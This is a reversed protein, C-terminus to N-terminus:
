RSHPSWRSMVSPARPPRDSQLNSLVNSLSMTALPEHGVRGSPAIAKYPKGPAHYYVSVRKSDLSKQYTASGEVDPPLLTIKDGIDPKQIVLLACPTFDQNVEPALTKSANEVLVSRFRLPLEARQEHAIAWIPYEFANGSAVIGVDQCRRSQIDSIAGKYLKTIGPRSILYREVREVQYVSTSSAAQFILNQASIVPRFASFFVFPLSYVTLFLVAFYFVFIRKMKCSLITGVFPSIAVFFPLQLRSIWPQWSILLNFLFGSLLLGALYINRRSSRVSGQLYVILASLFLALHLLNGSSDESLAVSFLSGESPKRVPIRFSAQGYTIRPDSVDLKLINGHLWIIVKEFVENIPQFAVALHVSANRLLNSIFASPTFLENLTGSGSIGLPVGLADINRWWHGFNLLLVPMSVLVLGGWFGAKVHRFLYCALFVFVPFTYIYATAKTLLALGLVAGIEVLLSKSIHPERQLLLAYFLACILWYSVVYDNQTTVSQLLGMPISLCIAASLMQGLLGAGLEQAILSVGILCGVMSGWQVLNAFQDGGSLVQLHLIAFGSWPPNDIQRLNNTPYHSVSQNQIWNVVRTMHYTLSDANNPPVSIALIFTLALVLFFSLLTFGLVPQIAFRRFRFSAFSRRRFLILILVGAIATWSAFVWDRNLLHLRSLLETIAALAVSFYISASVISRRWCFDKRRWFYLCAFVVFLILYM